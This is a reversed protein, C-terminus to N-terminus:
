RPSVLRAGGAKAAPVPTSLSLAVQRFSFAWLVALTVAVISGVMMALGFMTLILGATDWGSAVGDLYASRMALGSQLASAGFQVLLASGSIALIIRGTARRWGADVNALGRHPLAPTSSVRWLALFTAGLLVITALLLPVGYFWGAYPSSASAADATEFAILRHRGSDDPSSTVGSFVLFLTQLIVAVALFAAGLPSVFSLPTRPTLSAQRGAGSDVVEVHPPTASYLLLGASVALAPALALPLGLSPRLFCAAAVLTLIVLGSFLVALVVRRRAARLLRVVLPALLRTAPRHRLLLLWMTTVAITVCFAYGILAVGAM